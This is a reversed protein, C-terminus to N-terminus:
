HRVALAANRAHVSTGHIEGKGLWSSVAIDVVPYPPGIRFTFSRADELLPQGTGSDAKRRLVRRPADMYISIERVLVISTGVRGYARGLPSALNLSNPGAEAIVAAEGKSEDMICITRGAPFSRGDAVQLSNQGAAADAMLVASIEGSRIILSDGVAELSKAIEDGPPGALGRGANRVDARIRDIAASINEETMQAEGLKALTKRASSFVDIGALFLVLFLTLAILSEMLSFGAKGAAPPAM